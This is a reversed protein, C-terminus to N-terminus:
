VTLKALLPPRPVGPSVILIPKVFVICLYSIAASSNFNNTIPENKFKWCLWLINPM